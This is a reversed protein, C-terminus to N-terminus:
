NGYLAKVGGWTSTENSVSGDLEFVGDMQLHYGDPIQAGADLTFSGGWTYACDACIDDLVEGDLGNLTGEYAGSGGAAYFFTLSIFAGRFALAGDTFTGPSVASPPDVGWDANQAPDRYIDLYGGSYNIMVTGGGIPTEGGSIMGYMYFTLEDVGFDVQFIPDAGTAVATVILEDGADSPLLGGTEWAYGIYDIAPNQALVSTALVVLAIATALVHATLKNM